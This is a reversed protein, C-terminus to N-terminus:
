ILSFCFQPTTLCSLLSTITTLIRIANLNLRKSWEFCKHNRTCKSYIKPFLYITTVVAHSVSRVSRTTTRTKNQKQQQQQQQQKTKTQKNQKTKNKNQNTKNNSSNKNGNRLIEASPDFDRQKMIIFIYTYATTRWLFLFLSRFCNVALKRPFFLILFM